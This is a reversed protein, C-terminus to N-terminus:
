DDGAASHGYVQKAAAPSVYGHRLDRAVDATDRDAPDGYGGGGSTQLRISDGKTLM